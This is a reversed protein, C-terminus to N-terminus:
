PKAPTVARKRQKFDDAPRVAEASPKWYRSYSAEYRGSPLPGNQRVFFSWYHKADSLYQPVNKADPFREAATPSTDVTSGHLAEKLQGSSVIEQVIEDPEDARLARGAFACQGPQLTRGLLGAPQAAHQFDITMYMTQEGSSDIRGKVVVFRLEAGGRCRLENAPPDADAKKM